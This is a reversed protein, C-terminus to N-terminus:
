HGLARLRRVSDRDLCPAHDHAASLRRVENLLEQNKKQTAALDAVAKQAKAQAADIVAQRRQAEAADAAKEQAIVKAVAEAAARHEAHKVYFFAAALVMLAVAAYRLPKSNWIASLVNGLIPLLALM